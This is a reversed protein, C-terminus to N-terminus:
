RTDKKAPKADSLGLFRATAAVARKLANGTKRNSTALGRETHAGGVAVAKETHRDATALADLSSAGGAIVAQATKRSPTHHVAAVDFASTLAADPFDTTMKQPFPWRPSATWSAGNLAAGAEGLNVVDRPPLAMTPACRDHGCGGGCAEPRLYSAHKGLSIWVTPGASEGGIAAASSWSSVDCVTDEHAAAYWYRAKWEGAPAALSAASVLVSVHELDLPHGRRGCDRAWLHYFHLELLTSGDQHQGRLFVQGYITGNGAVPTPESRGAAFEAPLGDCDAAHVLFAPRFRQLLANELADDIGDRDNDAAAVM